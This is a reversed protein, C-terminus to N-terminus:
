GTYPNPSATLQESTKQFFLVAYLSDNFIDKNTSSIIELIRKVGFSDQNSIIFDGFLKVHSNYDHILVYGGVNLLPMFRVFDSAVSSLSHDGDIWLLDLKINRLDAWRSNDAIFNVQSIKDPLKQIFVSKVCEIKKADIDIIYFKNNRIYPYIFGSSAGCGIELIDANSTYTLYSLLTGLTKSVGVSVNDISIEPTKKVEELISPDIKLFASM